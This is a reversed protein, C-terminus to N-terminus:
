FPKMTTLEPHEKKLWELVDERLEKVFDVLEAADKETAIGAMEDITEYETQTFQDRYQM